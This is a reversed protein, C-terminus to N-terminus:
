PASREYDGWYESVYLRRYAKRVGEFALILWGILLFTLLALLLGVWFGVAGLSPGLPHMLGGVQEPGCMDKNFSNDHVQRIRWVLASRSAADRRGPAGVKCVQENMWDRLPGTQPVPQPMALDRPNAQSSQLFEAWQESGPADASATVDLLPGPAGGARFPGWGVCWAIFGVGIVVLVAQVARVGLASPKAFVLDVSSVRLRDLLNRRM